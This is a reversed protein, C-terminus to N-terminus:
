HKHVLAFNIGSLMLQSVFFANPIDNTFSHQIHCSVSHLALAKDESMYKLPVVYFLTLVPFLKSSCNNLTWIHKFM